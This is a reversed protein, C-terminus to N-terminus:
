FARYLNSKFWRQSIKSQKSFVLQIKKEFEESLSPEKESPNSYHNNGAILDANQNIINEINIERILDEVDKKSTLNVIPSIENGKKDKAKFM